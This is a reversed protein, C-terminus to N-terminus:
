PRAEGSAGQRRIGLAIVSRERAGSRPRGRQQWSRTAALCGAMDLPAPPRRGLQRVQSGGGACCRRASGDGARGPTGDEMAAKDADVFRNRWRNISEASVAHRRAAEAVTMEVKAIAPVDMGQASLQVMQARRWTVVSGSDRRVIRVPRQGEDDDIERVQVREAVPETEAILV